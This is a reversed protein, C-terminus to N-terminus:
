FDCYFALYKLDIFAHLFHHQFRLSVLKYGLSTFFSKKRKMTKKEKKKNKKIERWYEVWRDEIRSVAVSSNSGVAFIFQVALYLSLVFLTLCAFM